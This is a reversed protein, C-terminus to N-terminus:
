KKLEELMQRYRAGKAKLALRRSNASEPIFEIWLCEEPMWDPFKDAWEILAVGDAATYEEFGVDLLQEPYDLRYLDFHYVPIIGQYVNMLTFTPSTVDEQVGLGNAIGQVFLTKGTGLDGILCIVDKTKLMDALKHGFERTEGPSHTVINLM